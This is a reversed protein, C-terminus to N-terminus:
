FRISTPCVCMYYCPKPQIERFSWLWSFFFFDIRSGRARRRSGPSTAAAPVPPVPARVGGEGM